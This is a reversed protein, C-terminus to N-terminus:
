GVLGDVVRETTIRMMEPYTSAEPGPSTILLDDIVTAGTAAALRELVQPNDGRQAFVAPVGAAEVQEILEALEGASSEAEPAAGFTTGLVEFGYRDAFYGMSDHSTVLKRSPEPIEAVMEALEGDLARLETAYRRAAARYEGAGSPDLEALDRALAPMAAAVKTPDLWVHPDTGEGEHGAGSKEDLDLPGSINEALEFTREASELPLGEELATSALVVLDANEIEEQDRASAAYSHPDAGDPVLQTVELREGVVGAVIDAVVGSTAVIAPSGGEAGGEEAGCASLPLAALALVALAARNPSVRPNSRNCPFSLVITM